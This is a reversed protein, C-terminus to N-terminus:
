QMEKLFDVVIGRQRAATSVRPVLINQFFDLADNEDRDLSIRKLEIVEEAELTIWLSHATASKNNADENDNKLSSQRELRWVITPTYM